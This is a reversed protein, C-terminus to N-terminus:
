VNDDRNVVFAFIDDRRQLRNRALHPGRVPDQNAVITFFVIRQRCDGAIALSEAPQCNYKHTVEPAARVTGHKGSKGCTIGGQHEYIRGIIVVVGSHEVRHHRFRCFSAVDYARAPKHWAAAHDIARQELGEKYTGAIERKVVESSQWRVICAITKTKERTAGDLLDFDLRVATEAVADFQKHLAM